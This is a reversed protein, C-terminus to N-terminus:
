ISTTQFQDTVAHPPNTHTHTHRHDDLWAISHILIRHSPDVATTMVVPAFSQHTHTHTAM